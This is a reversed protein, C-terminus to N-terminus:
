SEESAAPASARCFVGMVVEAIGCGFSRARATLVDCFFGERNGLGIPGTETPPAGNLGAGAGPDRASYVLTAPPPASSRYLGYGIHGPQVSLLHYATVSEFRRCGAHLAPARVLQALRGGNGRRGHNSPKM